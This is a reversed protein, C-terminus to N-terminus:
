PAIWDGQWHGGGWEFRARLHGTAQLFLWDIAFVGSSIVAFNDFGEDLEAARTDDGALVLGPAHAAHYCRRSSPSSKEWRAAAVEDDHHISVKGLLRLQVKAQRDYFLWAARPNQGFGSVKPSRIDTHCILQRRQEDAQQLVVTRVDPDPGFASALVPTHFPHTGRDAGERLSAWINQLIEDFTLQSHDLM